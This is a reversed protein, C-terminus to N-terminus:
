YEAPTSKEKIIEVHLTSDVTVTYHHDLNDSIPSREEITMEAKGPKEGTFTFIVVYGAGTMEEHDKKYYQRKSTYSVIDSDLIVTFEPGGGDFSDFELIAASADTKMENFYSMESMGGLVIFVMILIYSAIKLVPSVKRKGALIWIVSVIAFLAIGLAIWFIVPQLVKILAFAGRFLLFATFM